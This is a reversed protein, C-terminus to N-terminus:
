QKEYSCTFDAPKLYSNNYIWIYDPEGDHEQCTFNLDRTEGERLLIQEPEEGPKEDWSESEINYATHCFLIDGREVHIRCTYKGPERQFTTCCGFPSIAPHLHTRVHNQLVM